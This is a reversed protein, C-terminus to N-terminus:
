ARGAMIWVLAVAAAALAAALLARGVPRWRHALPLDEPSRRRVDPWLDPAPVRGLADFRGEPDGRNGGLLRRLRRKGRTIHLPMWAVSTGLINAASWMSHRAYHRLVLAGRQMPALRRLAMLLLGSPDRLGGEDLVAEVGEPPDVGAFRSRETMEADAFRFAARWVAQAPRRTRGTRALVHAFAEAVSYNAVERDGTYALVARWLRAGEEAYLEEAAGGARDTVREDHM